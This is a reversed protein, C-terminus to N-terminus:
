FHLEKDKQAILQYLFFDAWGGLDTVKECTFNEFIRKIVITDKNWPEVAIYIPRGQKLMDSILILSNMHLTNFSEVGAYLRLPGSFDLGGVLSHPEVKRSIKKSIDYYLKAKGTAWLESYHTGRYVFYGNVLFVIGTMLAIATYKLPKSSIRQNLAIVRKFGLAALIFLAPYGPLLFRTWWWLDGGPFWFCYFILFVAFWSGYFIAHKEKWLGILVLLLLILSFQIATEHLYFALHSFFVKTTLDFGLNAYGTKWPAGYVLWNYTGYILSSGAFGLGFKLRDSNEKLEKLIFPIFVLCILANTPRVAIAYVLSIGSLLCKNKKFLYFALIIFFAAAMDSMVYTSGYVVIPFLGWLSAFLAATWRDTMTRIILFMLVISLLGLLPNVAYELNLFGAAAMLLPFGPPYQPLVKGDKEFYSLPALSPYRSAPLQTPMSIQGHKFLQAEQYYGYWDCAGVCRQNYSTYITFALVLFIVASAAFLGKELKGPLM